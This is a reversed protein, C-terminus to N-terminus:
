EPQLSRWLNEATIEGRFDCHQYLRAQARWQRCAAPDPEVCSGLGTANGWVSACIPPLPCFPSITRIGLASALHLPGTSGIIYSGMQSIVAGLSRLDLLGMSQYVRSSTAVGQPWSSLLSRERESGTVVIRWTTRELILAALDGYVRAPLNCTNGLCGPHIGVVPEGAFGPFVSRIREKAQIIEEERCFYDPKLGDTPVKLARALDLMLDSFHRGERFAYRVLLCHHGTLRGWIGAQMALRLRVGSKWSAWLMQRPKPHPLLICDYRQAKMWDGLERWASPFGEAVDEIAFSKGVHPNGELVPALWRPTIVEVSHGAKALARILPTTLILDGLHDLRILLIKVHLFLPPRSPPPFDLEGRYL